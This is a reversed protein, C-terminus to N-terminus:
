RRATRHAIAQDYADFLQRGVHQWAYRGEAQARAARGLAARRAPDGLLAITTEAFAEPTDAVALHEGPRVDIGECGVTTSVIAKGMAMADLVKLRTGGGVRIPVVYVASRGVLPRIDDVFGPVNIRPDAAAADRLEQPPHRGVAHFQVGPVRATILPWIDRIFHMVADLNAFMTLGGTYILSPTQDATSPTFYDTDVGNPVVARAAGPAVGDLAEGDADSVVINVDYRAAQDREYAELKRAERALFRRAIPQTEVAARRGMLMSEINHHTLLAPPRRDHDLFQSLAITDAHVVDFREGALLGAVRSRYARSRHAIAAFPAGSVASTAIAAAQHLRSQKVWLPFYDVEACFAAMAQRSEEVKEPTPLLNPHVFALLHVRARQSLQRLVHYGRQLVGGHPPYPVVQSLFLVNM